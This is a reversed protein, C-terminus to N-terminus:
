RGPRQGCPRRSPRNAGAAPGACWRYTGGIELAAGARRAISVTLPPMARAAEWVRAPPMQRPVVRRRRQRVIRVQHGQDRAVPRRENVRLQEFPAGGQQPTHARAREALADARREDRGVLGAHAFVVGLRQQVAARERDYSAQLRRRRGGGRAGRRGSRCRARCACGPARAGLFRAGHPVHASMWQAHQRQFHELAASDGAAVRRSSKSFSSARASWNVRTYSTCRRCTCCAAMMSPLRM